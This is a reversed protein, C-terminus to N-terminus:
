RGSQTGRLRAGPLVKKFEASEFMQPAVARCDCYIGAPRDRIGWTIGLPDMM